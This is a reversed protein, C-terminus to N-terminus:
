TLSWEGRRAAAVQEASVVQTYPNDGRDVARDWARQNLDQVRDQFTMAGGKGGATHALRPPCPGRTPPSSTRWGAASIGCPWWDLYSEQERRSCRTFWL